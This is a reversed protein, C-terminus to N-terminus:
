IIKYIRKQRDVVARYRAIMRYISTDTNPLAVPSCGVRAFGLEQMKNDVLAMISKCQTKKGSALNSYVNVEYMLVSHNENGELDKTRAYLSNDMEIITVAPFKTPATVYEGSVFIGPFQSRLTNAVHTFVESEIDIVV